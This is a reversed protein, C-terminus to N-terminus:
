WTSQAGDVIRQVLREIAEEKGVDETESAELYEGQVRLSGDAWLVVNEVLDVIEVQVTLNVQRVVVDARGQAQDPQFLPAQLDYTRITGRVVADAVDEGGQQLGLAQPLNRLLAQHVEQTLEFRTTQNDFPVVAITRIHDPPFSGGRFSYLGVCGSVLLPLGLALIWLRGLRHIPSM